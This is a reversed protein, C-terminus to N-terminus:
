APMLIIMEINQLKARSHDYPSVSRIKRNRDEPFKVVRHLCSLSENRIEEALQARELTLEEQTMKFGSDGTKLNRVGVIMWEIKEPENL